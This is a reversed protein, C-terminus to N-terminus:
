TEPARGYLHVGSVAGDRRDRAPAEQREPDRLLRRWACLRAGKCFERQGRSRGDTRTRTSARGASLAPQARARRRGAALRIARQRARFIGACRALCAQCDECRGRGRRSNACNSGGASEARTQGACVCRAFAYREYYAIRTEDLSRHSGVALILTAVGGGIVLAIALVQAWSRRADRFLKIDLASMIDGSWSRRRAARKTVSSGRYGAM